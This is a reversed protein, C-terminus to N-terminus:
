RRGSIRGASVKIVVRRVSMKRQVNRGKDPACESELRRLNGDREEGTGFYESHCGFYERSQEEGDAVIKRM